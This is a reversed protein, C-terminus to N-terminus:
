NARGLNDVLGVYEASQNPWNYRQNFKAANQALESLRARDYYLARICNALGDVDEPAFFELMSGDFYASIGSTRAAIAPVGLAAYEMLKTPLIGDTFVDSRYPALGVHASKILKPLETIPVFRSSIDVCDRLNLEEVLGHIGELFEGRGHVILRVDPIEQHVQALARLALDLGNRQTLSGHYILRFPGEQQPLDNATVGNFYQPDALNMVVSCKDSPVGRKILVQRWAETVTIVHSAFRCSLQEQWIVLRVLWSDMSRNARVAFFEPMLDHIDLIVRAGNLKPWLACFVLFDPLNHIQVVQYRKQKYLQVLKLAALLLFHLYELLQGMLGRKRDRQVSLRYVNVGQVVEEKAETPLRLCIVDVEYGHALLAEAERQVRTEALPYYAHVVMCHHKPQQNM